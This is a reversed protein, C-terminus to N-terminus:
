QIPPPIPPLSSPIEPPFTSLPKANGLPKQLSSLHEFMAQLNSETEREEEDDDPWDDWEDWFGGDSYDDNDEEGEEEENEEDEEETNEETPLLGSPVFGVKSGDFFSIHERLLFGFLRDRTAYNAGTADLTFGMRALEYTLLWRPGKLDEAGFSQKWPQFLAPFPSLKNNYAQFLLLANVSDEM